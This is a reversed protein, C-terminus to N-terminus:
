SQHCIVQQIHIKIYDCLQIKNIKITIEYSPTEAM